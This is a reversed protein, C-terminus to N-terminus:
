VNAGLFTEMGQQFEPAVAAAQVEHLTCLQSIVSALDPYGPTGVMATFLAGLVAGKNALPGQRSSVLVRCDPILRRLGTQLISQILSSRSLGGTIVFRQIPPVGTDIIEGLLDKTLRLMHVAISSQTSLVKAGLSLSDWDPPYVEQWGQDKHAQGVFRLNAIGAGIGLKDLEGYALSKTNYAGTFRDYWVACDALMELLLSDEFYEFRAANGRLRADPRCRRIVTGSSGLSLVLTERDALGSGVGGAHNDGLGARVTWGKLKGAVERWAAAAKGAAVTGVPAGSPIPVPFWAPDHGAMKLASVALEKTKQNLLGNSLADSASLRAVGTLQLAMYDGTTMVSRIKGALGAEQNLAWKLKPLIFRPEIRGVAQEAGLKRLQDVEATAAHCQWTIFPILVEGGAGLLVMDHQRVSACLDGPKAFSWGKKELQQLAEALMPPLTASEVAPQGHWACTGRMPIAALDEEGNTGRVGVTVATTSIDLGLFRADKAM